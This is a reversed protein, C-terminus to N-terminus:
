ITSNLSLLGLYFYEDLFTIVQARDLCAHFELLAKLEVSSYLKIMYKRILCFCSHGIINVKCLCLIDNTCVMDVVEKM